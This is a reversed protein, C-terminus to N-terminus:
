DTRRLTARVIYDDHITEIKLLKWLFRTIHGILGIEYCLFVLLKYLTRDQSFSIFGLDPIEYRIRLKELLSQLILRNLTGNAATPEFHIEYGEKELLRKIKSTQVVTVHIKGWHQERYVKSGRILLKERIETPYKLYISHPKLWAINRLVKEHDIIHELVDTCVIDEFSVLGLPLFRADCILYYAYPDNKRAKIVKQTDIDFALVEDCKCLHRQSTNGCGIVLSFCPSNTCKAM